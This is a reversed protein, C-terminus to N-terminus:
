SHCRHGLSVLSFFTSRSLLSVFLTNDEPLVLSVLMCFASRIPELRKPWILYFSQLSFTYVGAPALAVRSDNDYIGFSGYTVLSAAHFGIRKVLVIVITRHPGFSVRTRFYAM